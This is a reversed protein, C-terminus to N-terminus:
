IQILQVSFLFSRKKKRKEVTQHRMNGNNEYSSNGKSFSPHLHHSKLSSAMKCFLKSGDFNEFTRRQCTFCHGRLLHSMKLHVTPPFSSIQHSIVPFFGPPFHTKVGLLVPLLVLSSITGCGLYKIEQGVPFKKKKTCHKKEVIPQSQTGGVLPPPTVKMKSKVWGGEVTMGKQVEQQKRGPYFRRRTEAARSRASTASLTNKWGLTLTKNASRCFFVPQGPHDPPPPTLPLDASM